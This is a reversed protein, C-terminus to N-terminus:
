CALLRRTAAAVDAEDMLAEGILFCDIGAAVYRALDAAARLGSEAVITRGSPVLHAFDLARLPDVKLTRLDRNNIGILAGEVAVARAVEAADHAEVLVDMGWFRAARALDALEADRLAAVILLICDAGLARSETIQWPDVIFDKRLVPLSVAARAAAVYGPAGEFWQPETLVSLCTAGGDAYARALAAVKFDGRIRGRSPSARKIEAILGPRSDARTAALAAAFGRPPAAASAAAGIESGWQACSVEVRARTAEVIASLTDTM